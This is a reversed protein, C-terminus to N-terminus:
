GGHPPGVAPVPALSLPSSDCFVGQERSASPKDELVSVETGATVWKSSLWSVFCTRIDSCLFTKRGFAPRLYFPFPCCSDQSSWRYWLPAAFSFGAGGPPQYGTLCARQKTVVLGKSSHGHGLGLQSLRLPFVLRRLQLPSSPAPTPTPFKPLHGGSAM